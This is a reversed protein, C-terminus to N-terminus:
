VFTHVTKPLPLDGLCHYLNRIYNQATRFGYAKHIVLKAKNNLGEVTGNDIPMKFYNLIDKEHRRVMWAFDRMPKLRAHTAWWFWRKLYRQAWGARRYDWFDRFLEKLLYARNVKLNLRELEGLRLAQRETLNWPNKLWIFRTRYMLAKHEAGKERIEDRRVQDVAEMLHRVIHFKDFVLVAQPARDKIVDIYPQWMDCCIGELAATKEAGLYDFFAELTAEKRGEGSWILRKRVLDYVNTVYVHGRKRSIEDIGIHTLGELDRHALGYVVAEEVATAVTGWACRFLRAVQQWPLVRTWTALTVMLARTMRQKGSVWPMSEVHVGACQPCRVRRPEYHLEVPIGWLPVHRFRRMPRTDRYPAPALCRGCRANFRLDPEIVAVLGSPDGTVRSVVFGQLELTSKVLSEILM